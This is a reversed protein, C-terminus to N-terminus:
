HVTRGPEEAQLEDIAQMVQLWHARREMDGRELMEDARKAAELGARDGYRVILVKAAFRMKVSPLPKM